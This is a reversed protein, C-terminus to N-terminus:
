VVPERQLNLLSSAYIVYHCGHSMGAQLERTVAVVERGLYYLRGASKEGGRMWWIGGERELESSGKWQKLTQKNSVGRSVWFWVV